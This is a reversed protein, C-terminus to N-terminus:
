WEPLKQLLLASRKSSRCLVGSTSGHVTGTPTTMSSLMFVVVVLVVLVVSMGVVNWGSGAIMRRAMSRRETAVKAV